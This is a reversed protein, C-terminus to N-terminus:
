PASERAFRAPPAGPWIRSVATARGSADREVVLVSRDARVMLSDRGIPAAYHPTRATVWQVYGLGDAV